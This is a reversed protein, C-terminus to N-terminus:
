DARLLALNSAAVASGAERAKEYWYRAKEPDRAIGDGEQYMRGIAEMARASGKQAAESYLRLAADTDRPGDLGRQYVEGAGVLAEVIGADAAKKYLALASDRNAKGYRGHAYMEALSRMAPAYDHEEVARQYWHKARYYNGEMEYLAGLGRMARADRKKIAERLWFEAQVEDPSTGQGELYMVGLYGKAEVNGDEAIRKFLPFAAAYNRAEYLDKADTLDGRAGMIGLAPQMGGAGPTDSIPVLGRLDENLFFAGSVLTAAVVTM